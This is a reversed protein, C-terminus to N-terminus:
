GGIFKLRSCLALAVKLKKVYTLVPNSTSYCCHKTFKSVIIAVILNLKQFQKLSHFVCGGWFGTTFKAHVFIKFFM